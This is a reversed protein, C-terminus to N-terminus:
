RNKHGRCQIERWRWAGSVIGRRGRSRRRQHHRDGRRRCCRGHCGGRRSRRRDGPRARVRQRGLAHLLVPFLGVLRSPRLPLHPIEVQRNAGGIMRQDLDLGNQGAVDVGSPTAVELIQTAPQAADAIGGLVLQLLGGGRFVGLIGLHQRRGRDLVDAQLEVGVDIAVDLEEGAAATGHELLPQPARAAVHLQELLHEAALSERGLQRM